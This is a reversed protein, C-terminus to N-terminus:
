RSRTGPSSRARARVDRHHAPRAAGAGQADRAIVKREETTYDDGDKFAGGPAARQLRDRHPISRRRRRSTGHLMRTPRATCSTSRRERGHGVGVPVHVRDRARHGAEDHIPELAVVMQWRRATRTPSSGRPATAARGRQGRPRGAPGRPGHALRSSNDICSRARRRRVAAGVGAVAGGASFLAVDFGASRGEALARVTRERRRARPRRQARPRLSSRARAPLRARALISSCPRAWRARPASSRSAVAAARDGAARRRSRASSPRARRARVGRAARARRQELTARRPDRM